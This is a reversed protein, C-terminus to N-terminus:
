RVKKTPTPRPLVYSAKARKSWQSGLVFDWMGGNGSVQWTGSSEANVQTLLDVEIANNISIM